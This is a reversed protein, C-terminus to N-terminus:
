GRIAGGGGFRRLADGPERIVPVLERVSRKIGVADYAMQFSITYVFYYAIMVGGAAAVWFLEGSALTIALTKIENLNALVLWAFGLFLLWLIWRRM